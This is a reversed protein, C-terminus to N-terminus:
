LPSEVFNLINKEGDGDHGRNRCYKIDLISYTFHYDSHINTM